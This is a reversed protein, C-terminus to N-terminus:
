DISVEVNQVDKLTIHVKGDDGIKQETKDILYRFASGDITIEVNM